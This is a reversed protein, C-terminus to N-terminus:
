QVVDNSVDNVKRHDWNKSDLSGRGKRLWRVEYVGVCLVYLSFVFVVRKDREEM